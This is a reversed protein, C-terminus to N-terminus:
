FLLMDLSGVHGQTPQNTSQNTPRYYNEEKKSNFVREKMDLGKVKFTDFNINDIVPSAITTPSKAVRDLLPELWGDEVECHSDLFVVVDATAAEVGAVRSRMLGVRRAAKPSKLLISLM